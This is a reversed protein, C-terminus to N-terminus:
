FLVSLNKMHIQSFKSLIVHYSLLAYKVITRYYPVIRELWVLKRNCAYMWLFVLKMVTEQIFM